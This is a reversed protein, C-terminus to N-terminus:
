LEGTDGHEAGRVLVVVVLLLLQVTWQMMEFAVAAM